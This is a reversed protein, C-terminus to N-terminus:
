MRQGGEKGKCVRTGLVECCLAATEWHGQHPELATPALASINGPDDERDEPHNDTEQADM